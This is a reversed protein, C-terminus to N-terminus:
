GAQRFVHKRFETMDKDPIRGKQFDSPQGGDLFRRICYLSYLGCETQSNQHRVNTLPITITNGEEKLTNKRYERLAAASKEMWKTAQKTPPNGASNFYVIWWDAGPGGSCDGFLVLWHLGRGSSKDTNLVCAFRRCKRRVTRPPAGVLQPAEGKLIDVPSIRALTDGVEEFDMMNFSYNYFDPYSEAWRQLTGDINFNSLLATSDRPGSAKFNKEVDAKLAGRSLGATKEAHKKFAGHTVVCSESSCGLV